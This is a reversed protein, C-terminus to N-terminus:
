IFRSSFMPQHKHRQPMVLVEIHRKLGAFEIPINYAAAPCGIRSLKSKFPIALCILDPM